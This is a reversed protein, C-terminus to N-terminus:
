RRAGNRHARNRRTGNRHAGNPRTGNGGAGNTHSKLKRKAKRARAAMAERRLKLRRKRRREERRAERCKRCKCGIPKIVLDFYASGYHYTIEEGPDIGKIARLVVKGKVLDSEANPRCSHNAYRATNSRPSGDITWRSNVEYMYRSGRRELEDAEANTIRPGTYEAIFDGQRFPMVAFLGLGIRSRGVRISPLLM